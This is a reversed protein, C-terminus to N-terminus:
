KEDVAALDGVRSAGCVRVTPRAANGGHRSGRERAVRGPQERAGAGARAAGRRPLRRGGPVMRDGRQVVGGLPQRRSHRINEAEALAHAAAAAVEPAPRAAMLLADTHFLAVYLDREPDPTSRQQATLDAFRALGGEVDGVFAEQWALSAALRDLPAGGLQQAVQSAQRLVEVAAGCNGDRNHQGARSDLAQVLGECPALSRYITISRDLLAIRATKEDPGLPINVAARRLLEATDMPTLTVRGALAEDALAFARGSDGARRCADIAAVYAEALRLPPDGVEDTGAPWWELARQWLRAAEAGAFRADALQAARVTWELAHAQDGGRLWHEAIQAAPADPELALAAAIRRHQQSAETSTLSRRIAEALLPHRLEVRASDARGRLLHRARLTHLAAVLDDNPLGTMPALAPETVPRDAVALASAAARAPGDIGNVRRDLLDVLLQPMGRGDVREAALQEAFLPHGAARAHIRAVLEPDPETGILLALQEATEERDLPALEVVHAAQRRVRTFWDATAEPVAPDEVRYSGVMPVSLGRTVLHEVLDLTASDAWHLDDIVLALPEPDALSALTAAIANHLRQRSWSDDLGAPAAEGGLEPVLIALSLAVYGPCRDLAERLWAGSDHDHVSGLLDAVPLLPVQTAM